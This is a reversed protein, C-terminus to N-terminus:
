KTGVVFSDGHGPYITMEPKLLTDIKKLSKNIKYSSGGPLDTRGIGDKFLTDGTILFNKGLLCISGETHGPTHIVELFDGNIDIKDKDNILKDAGIGTFNLFNADDKHILVQIDNNNKLEQAFTTHDPHYHTLIIYKNKKNLDKIKKLILDIEGGPDIIIVENKSYVFYCNTCLDGVVIKEIKM